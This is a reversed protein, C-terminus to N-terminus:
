SGGRLSKLFLVKIGKGARTANAKYMDPALNGSGQAIVICDARQIRPNQM